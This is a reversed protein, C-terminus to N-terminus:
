KTNLEQENRKLEMEKLWSAYVDDPIEEYGVGTILAYMKHMQVFAKYADPCQKLEEENTAECSKLLDNFLHTYYNSKLKLGHINNPYYKLSENACRLVFESEGFQVKYYKALDVLCNAIVQKTNVTDMYIGSRIAESKIYGSGAVWSDSTVVGSTLEINYFGGYPKKCKVYSHEPSFSLYGEGGLEELLLLYLLPLSKCQGSNDRMLKSVFVNSIENEGFPDNFDYRKPYSTKISSETLGEQYELTDTMYKFLISNVKDGKFLEYDNLNTANRCVDGMRKLGNSFREYDIASTSRGFYAGETLFVARKLSLESDGNLMKLVENFTHTFGDLTSQNASVVKRKDTIDDSSKIDSLIAEVYGLSQKSKVPIINADKIVYGGWNLVELIDDKQYSQSILNTKVKPSEPSNIYDKVVSQNSVQSLTIFSFFVVFLTLLSKM